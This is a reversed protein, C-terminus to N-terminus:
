PLARAIPKYPGYRQPPDTINRSELITVLTTGGVRWERNPGGGTVGDDRVFLYIGPTTGTLRGTWASGSSSQCRVRAGIRVERAFTMTVSTM